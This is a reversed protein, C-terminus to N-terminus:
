QEYYPESTVPYTDLRETPQLMVVIEFKEQDDDSSTLPETGTQGLYDSTERIDVPTQKVWTKRVIDLKDLEKVFEEMIVVTHRYVEEAQKLKGQLHIIPTRSNQLDQDIEPTPSFDTSDAPKITLDNILQMLEDGHVKQWQLGSLEINEFYKNDMVTSLVNFINDPSQESEKVLQKSFEVDDRMSQATNLEDQINSYNKDYYALLQNLKEEAIRTKSNFGLAQIILTATICFLILSGYYCTYSITKNILQKSYNRLDAKPAYHNTKPSLKSCIYSFLADSDLPTQDSRNKLKIGLDKAVEEISFFIYQFTNTNEHQDLAQEIIQEPVFYVLDIRDSYSLYRKNLLFQHLQNVGESAYASIDMKNTEAQDIRIQRSLLFMGNRIYNERLTGNSHKTILIVNDSLHRYRKILQESLLPISWIGCIPVKHKHIAEIWNEINENSTISSFLIEEDKRGSKEQGVKHYHTYKNDRYYRRINREILASRDKGKLPPITELLFDEELLDLLIFCYQTPSIELYEEFRDVDTKDTTFSYRLDLRHGNWHFVNLAFGSILFVRNIM